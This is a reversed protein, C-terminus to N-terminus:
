YRRRRASAFLIILIFVVILGGILFGFIDGSASAAPTAEIDIVEPMSGPVKVIVTRNASNGFVCPAACAAFAPATAVFSTRLIKTQTTLGTVLVQQAFITSQFHLAAIGTPSAALSTVKFEVTTGTIANLFAKMGNVGVAFSQAPNSNSAFAFNTYNAWEPAYSAADHYSNYITDSFALCSTDCDGSDSFGYFPINIPEPISNSIGVEEVYTVQTPVPDLFGQSVQVGLLLAVTAGLALLKLQM